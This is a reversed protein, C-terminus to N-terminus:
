YTWMSPHRDQAAVREVCRLHHEWADKLTNVNRASIMLGCTCVLAARGDKDAEVLWEQHTPDMTPTVARLWRHGTM